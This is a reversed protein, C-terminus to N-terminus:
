GNRRVPARTPTTHRTQGFPCAAAKGPMEYKASDNREKALDRHLDEGTPATAMWKGWWGGEEPSPIAYWRWVLAGTCRTTRRSGAALPSSAAPNGVIVLNDVVLPAMTFSYGSEGDAATVDWRVAGRPRM